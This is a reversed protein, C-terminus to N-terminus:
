GRVNNPSKHFTCLKQSVHVVDRFRACCRQFPCLMESVHLYLISSFVPHPHHFVNYGYIYVYAYHMICIYIHMICIYIYIYMFLYTYIYTYIDYIMYGMDIGLFYECWSSGWEEQCVGLNLPGKWSVKRRVGFARPETAGAVAVESLSAM